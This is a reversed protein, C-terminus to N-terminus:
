KVFGIDPYETSQFGFSGINALNSKVGTMQPRQYLILSHVENWILGDAENLLARARSLDVQEQAQSMLRDIRASGVRAYNQQVVLEGDPGRVPQEYISSASSIPFATGLWSFPTIDFNGPTVYKIFFDNEPVTRLDLKVGVRRLMGQALLGEQRSVAVGAPIVFRLSLQRGGKSRFAGSQRWGAQDLLQRSRAPDFRVPSSNDRYGTQTNVFFHNGMTRPPWNLGTLDARALTQRNIAMAVARRVRVDSLQPSRANFTFHRFDPGAAQRVDTGPVRNARAYDAPTPGIDVVDVEGSAFANISANQDLARFVIADLKAPTGWWKPDRVVTVTQATRDIRGVKFPGATKRIRNLWGRNFEEPNSNTEVPYVSFLGKWEGYPRAFTVIVEHDDRGRRVGAVREYGTSSAIQYPGSPSRLAKWEAEFERWTIPKGDSWRAKPNLRYTVVQRPRTATVRASLLYDPDPTLNGRQDSKFLGPMMPGLVASTSANPGDLHSGNWQIPFQEIAVRMTGGQRVEDRPRPNIDVPKVAQGDQGGGSGCGGAVLAVLALGAMAIAGRVKKVHEGKAEIQVSQHGVSHM